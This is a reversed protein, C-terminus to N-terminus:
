AGKELKELYMVNVITSNNDLIASVSDVVKLKNLYTLLMLSYMAKAFYMANLNSYKVDQQLHYAILEDNNVIADSLSEESCADIADVTIIIQPIYEDSVNYGEFINMLCAIRGSNSLHCELDTLSTTHVEDKDLSHKVFIRINYKKEIDKLYEYYNKYANGNNFEELTYKKCAFNSNYAKLIDVLVDHNIKM